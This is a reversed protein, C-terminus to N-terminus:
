AQRTRRAPSEDYTMFHSVFKRAGISSRAALLNQGGPTGVEVAIRPARGGRQRALWSMHPHPYAFEAARFKARARASM